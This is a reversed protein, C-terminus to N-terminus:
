KNLGLEALISDYDIELRKLKSNLAHIYTPPNGTKPNEGGIRLKKAVHTKKPAKGPTTVLGQITEAIEARFREAEQQKQELPKTSGIPRGVGQIHLLPQMNILRVLDERKKKMAENILQDLWRRVDETAKKTLQAKNEPTERTRAISHLLFTSTDFSAEQFSERILGSQLVMIRSLMVSMAFFALQRILFERQSPDLTGPKFFGDCISESEGFLPLLMTDLRYLCVFEPADQDVWLEFRLFPCNNQYTIIGHKRSPSPRKSFDALVADLIDQASESGNFTRDESM